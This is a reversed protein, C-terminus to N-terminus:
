QGEIGFTWFLVRRMDPDKPGPIHPRKVIRQVATRFPTIATYPMAVARDSAADALRYRRRPDAGISLDDAQVFVIIFGPMQVISSAAAELHM